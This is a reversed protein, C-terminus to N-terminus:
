KPNERVPWEFLPLTERRKGREYETEGGGRCVGWELGGSGRGNERMGDGVENGNEWEVEM